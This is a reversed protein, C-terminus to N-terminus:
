KCVLQRTDSGENAKLGHFDSPSAINVKRCIFHFRRNLANGIALCLPLWNPPTFLRLLPHLFASSPLLLLCFLASSAPLLPCFCCASSPPLFPQSFCDQMTAEGRPAKLMPSPTSAHVLLCPCSCCALLDPLDQVM